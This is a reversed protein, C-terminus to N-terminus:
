ETEDSPDEGYVAAYLDPAKWGAPKVIKGNEDFTAVDGPFKAMNAEAVEAFAEFPEYASSFAAGISVWALDIDADVLEVLDANQLAFGYFGEKFRKSFILLYDILAQMDRRGSNSPESKMIETMKEAMEELQLGLYLSAQRPNFGSTTQKGLTMFKQIVDLPLYRLEQNSLSTLPTMTPVPANPM